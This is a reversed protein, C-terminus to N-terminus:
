STVVSVQFKDSMRLLIRSEFSICAYNQGGHLHRYNGVACSTICSKIGVEAETDIKLTATFTQINANCTTLLEVPQTESQSVDEVPSAVSMINIM